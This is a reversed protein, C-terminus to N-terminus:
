TSPMGMWTLFCSCLQRSMMGDMRVHLPRLCRGINSGALGGQSDPFQRRRLDRGNRLGLLSRRVVAAELQRSPSYIEKQSDVEQLLASQAVGPYGDDSPGVYHGEVVDSGSSTSDPGDSVFLARKCLIGWQNERWHVAADPIETPTAPIKLSIRTPDNCNELATPLICADTSSPKGAGPHHDTPIRWLIPSM